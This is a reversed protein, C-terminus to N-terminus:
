AETKEAKAQVRKETAEEIASAYEDMIDKTASIGAGVKVPDSNLLGTAKVIQIIGIVLGVLIEFPLMIWSIILKTM